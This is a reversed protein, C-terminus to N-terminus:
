VTFKQATACEQNFTCNNIYKFGDYVGDLEPVNM